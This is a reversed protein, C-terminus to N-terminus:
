CSYHVRHCTFITFHSGQAETEVPCRFKQDCSLTRNSSLILLFWGLSMLPDCGVDTILPVFQIFSAELM